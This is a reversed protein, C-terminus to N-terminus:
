LKQIQVHIQHLMILVTPKYQMHLISSYTHMLRLTYQDVTGFDVASCLQKALLHSESHKYDFCAIQYWQILEFAFCISVWRSVAYFNYLCDMHSPKCLGSMICVSNITSVYNSPSQRPFVGGIKFIFCTQQQPYITLYVVGWDDM